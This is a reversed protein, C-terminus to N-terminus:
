ALEEKGMTADWSIRCEGENDAIFNIAKILFHEQYWQDKCFSRLVFITKMQAYNMIPVNLFELNKPNKQL